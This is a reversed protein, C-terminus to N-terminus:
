VKYVKRKGIKARYIKIGKIRAADKMWRTFRVLQMEGYEEYEKKFKEYLEKKLVEKGPDMEEFFEVFEECTSDIMKKKILNIHKCQVLGRNLYLQLCGIMYNHFNNWEENSWEDFFRHGFEDIPRHGKNYHDSFEVIFQRDM